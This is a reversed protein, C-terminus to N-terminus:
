LLHPLNWARVRTVTMRIGVSYATSFSDPTMRISEIEEDYKELYGPFEQAPPLGDDVVAHGELTVGATGLEDARLNFAVHPNSAISRLRRADPRNYVILDDGDRIYWIPSTQPQGNEKVATLFAIIERDLLQLLGPTDSLM